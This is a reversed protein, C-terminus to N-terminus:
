KKTMQSHSVIVYLICELGQSRIKALDGERGGFASQGRHHWLDQSSGAGTQVWSVVFPKVWFSVSYIEDTRLPITTGDHTWVCGSHLFNTQLHSALSVDFWACRKLCCSRPHLHQSSEWTSPQELTSEWIVYYEPESVHQQPHKTPVM